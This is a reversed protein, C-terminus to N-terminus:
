ALTTSSISPRLSVGGSEEPKCGPTKRACKISEPLIWSSTRGTSEILAALAINRILETRLHHEIWRRSPCGLTSARRGVLRQSQHDRAEPVRATWAWEPRPLRVRPQLNAAM